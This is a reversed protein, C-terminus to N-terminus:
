KKNVDIESGFDSYNGITKCKLCQFLTDYGEVVFVENSNCIPCLKNQREIEKEISM